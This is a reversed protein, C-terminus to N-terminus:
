VELEALLHRIEEKSLLPLDRSSYIGESLERFGAPINPKITKNGYPREKPLILYMSDSEYAAITEDTTMLVEDIKEGGRLGIIQTEIDNPTYGYHSAFMEKMVEGLDQIRIVPMKLIFIEKGEALIGAILILKAASPIDMIFRRMDPHTISIPGGKRIQKLFTPIVSGRSNLVNGFRVCSFATKKHGRYSNASITLREALLKTAGMVNSPNVAKDTSVTIIKGVGQILGAELVNQTGLVNTKIADFPNFECIPVHKLAAAHFVIDVHEMAMVLRAKDRIDGILPRLKQSNLDQELDFLATENNDFVRIFEPDLQIIERVLVSGISGVGGTILVRKGQYFDKLNM